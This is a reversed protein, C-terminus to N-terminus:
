PRHPRRCRAVAEAGGDMTVLQYGLHSAFRTRVDRVVTEDDVVLIWPRIIQDM